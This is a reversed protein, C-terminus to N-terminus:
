YVFTVILTVVMRAPTLIERVVRECDDHGRGADLHYLPSAAPTYPAVDRMVSATLWMASPDVYVRTALCGYKCIQETGGCLEDCISEGANVAGSAHTKLLAVRLAACVKQLPLLAV